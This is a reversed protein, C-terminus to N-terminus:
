SEEKVAAFAFQLLIYITHRGASSDASVAGVALLALSPLLLLLLLM